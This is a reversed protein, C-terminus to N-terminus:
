YAYMKDFVHVNPKMEDFFNLSVFTSYFYKIVSYLITYLKKSWIKTFPRQDYLVSGMNERKGGEKM